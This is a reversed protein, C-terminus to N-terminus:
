AQSPNGLLSPFIRGATIGFGLALASGISLEFLGRWDNVGLAFVPDILFFDIGLVFLFAAIAATMGGWTMAAGLFCVQLITNMVNYPQADVLNRLVVIAAFLIVFAAPYLRFRRSMKKQEALQAKLTAVYADLEHILDLRAALAAHLKVQEADLTEILDLRAALEAHLKAQGADLTEILDLRAARDAESERLEGRLKSVYGRIRRGARSVDSIAPVREVYGLEVMLEGHMLWFLDLAEGRLEAINNSNSGTRFHRPDATQLETFPTFESGPAPLNLFEALTEIV